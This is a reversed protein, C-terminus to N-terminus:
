LLGVNVLTDMWDCERLRCYPFIYDFLVDLYNPLTVACLMKLVSIIIMKTQQTLEKLCVYVDWIRYRTFYWQIGQSCAQISLTLRMKTDISINVFVLLKVLKSYVVEVISVSSCMSCCFTFSFYQPTCTCINNRGNENM